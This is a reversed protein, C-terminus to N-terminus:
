IAAWVDKWDVHDVIEQVAEGAMTALAPNLGFASTALTTGIGLVKGLDIGAQAVGLPASNTAVYYFNSNEWADVFRDAPYAKGAGAPDGPDNVIVMPHAPDSIDVGTVCVAHDAPSSFANDLGFEKKLWLGLEELPGSAWLESSNVGVIVRHGEQLEGVLQEVSAGDVRHYPVNYLDFLKGVDSPDTGGPALWGHSMADYIAQAETIPHDLYQNITSMQAVIACDNPLEQHHWFDIQSDPEGIYHEM